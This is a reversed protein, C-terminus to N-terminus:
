RKSYKEAESSITGAEYVLGGLNPIKGVFTSHIGAARCAWVCDDCLYTHGLLYLDAGRADDGAKTLVDVEAHSSQQCVDKCLNYGIGSSLHHLERPCTEQPSKCWNSGVWYRTGKVLIAVVVRKACKGNNLYKSLTQLFQSEPQM